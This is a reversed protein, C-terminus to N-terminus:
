VVPNSRFDNDFWQCDALFGVISPRKKYCLLHVLGGRIVADARETWSGMFVPDEAANTSVVTGETLTSPYQFAWHHEADNMNLVQRAIDDLVRSWGQM